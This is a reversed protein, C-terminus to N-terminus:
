RRGRKRARSGNKRTTRSPCVAVPRGRRVRKRASEHSRPAPHVEGRRGRLRGSRGDTGPRARDRARARIGRNGACGELRARGHAAIRRRAETFRRQHPAPVVPRRRSVARDDGQAPPPRRGRAGAGRTRRVGRAGARLASAERSTGGSDRRQGDARRHPCARRRQHAEISLRGHRRRPLTRPRGAHCARDLRHDAAAQGTWRRSRPHGADGRIWGNGADAPGDPCHRVGAQSTRRNRQSGARRKRRGQGQTRAEEPNDRGAQPQGRQGRGGAGAAAQPRQATRGGCRPSPEPRTRVRRLAHGPQRACRLAEGAQDPVARHRRAPMAGRRRHARRVDADRNADVPPPSRAQDRARAHLWRRGADPLRRDGRRLAAEDAIRAAPRRACGPCRRRGDAEDALQRADGRPHPSQHCQRRGGSRAPRQAEDTAAAGRGGANTVAHDFVATCHFTSGQGVKSEVWIRGNM